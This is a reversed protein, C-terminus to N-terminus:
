ESATSYRRMIEMVRLDNEVDTVGAVGRTVTAVLAKEQENLVVGRLVVRGGDVEPTINIQGEIDRARLATQIRAQLALDRLQAISAATPQFEPRRSLAIVQDICGQISVRGTNLVMDYLLPDGLTVGYMDRNRTIHAADTRAIEEAALDEDDTDLREM